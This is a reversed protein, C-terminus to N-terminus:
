SHWTWYIALVIVSLDDNCACYLFFLLQETKLDSRYFNLNNQKDPIQWCTRSNRINHLHPNLVTSVVCYVYGHYLWQVPIRAPWNTWSTIIMARWPQAQTEYGTDAHSHSPDCIRFLLTKEPKQWARQVPKRRSICLVVCKWWIHLICVTCQTSTMIGTCHTCM